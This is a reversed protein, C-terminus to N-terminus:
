PYRVACILSTQYLRYSLRIHQRQFEEPLLDFAQAYLSTTAFNVYPVNITASLMQGVLEAKVFGMKVLVDGLFGKSARQQELAAELQTETILGAALLQQGIKGRIGGGGAGFQRRQM